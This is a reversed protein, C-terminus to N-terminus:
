EEESFMAEYAARVKEFEEDSPSVYAPEGSEDFEVKAIIINEEDEGDHCDCDEHDCAEIDIGVLIAYTDDGVPFVLEERYYLENGEEDSVVIIQEEEMEELEEIKEFGDILDKKEDTM